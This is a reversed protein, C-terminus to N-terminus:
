YRWLRKHTRSPLLHRGLQVGAALLVPLRVATRSTTLPLPCYRQYVQTFSSQPTRRAKRELGAAALLDSLPPPPPGQLISHRSHNRQRNRVTGETEPSPNPKEHSSETYKSVNHFKQTNPVTPGIVNVTFNCMCM